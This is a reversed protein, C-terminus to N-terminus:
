GQKRAIMQGLYEVAQGLTAIHPYDVEPINVGLRDHLATVLNLVDM